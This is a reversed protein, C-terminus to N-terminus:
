RFHEIRAFGRFAEVQYLKLAVQIGNTLTHHERNAMEILALCSRYRRRLNNQRSVISNKSSALILYANWCCMALSSLRGNASM